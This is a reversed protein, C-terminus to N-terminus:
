SHFILLCSKKSWGTMRTICIDVVCQSRQPNARSLPRPQFSHLLRRPAGHPAPSMQLQGGMRSVGSSLLPGLLVGWRVQYTSPLWGWRFCHSGLESSEERQAWLDLEMSIVAGGKLTVMHDYRACVTKMVQRPPRSRQEVPLLINECVTPPFNLWCDLFLKVQFTLGGRTTCVQVFVATHSIEQNLM